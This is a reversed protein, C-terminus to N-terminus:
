RPLVYRSSLNIWQTQEPNIAGWGQSIRYVRVLSGLTLQLVIEPELSTTWPSRRVNLAETIVKHTWTSFKMPQGERVNRQSAKRSLLTPYVFGYNQKDWGGAPDLTFPCVGLVDGQSETCYWEIRNAVDEANESKYENGAYFESVIVDFRRRSAAFLNRYRFTMSGSRPVQPAGPIRGGFGDQISTKSNPPIVGEHIALADGSGEIFEFLGSNTLAVMEDWEPTGANLGLHASHTEFTDHILQGLRVSARGLREYNEPGAPDQENMLLVYEALRLQMASYRSVVQRFWEEAVKNPDDGRELRAGFGFPEDGFIRSVVKTTPSVEHIISALDPRDVTVVVSFPVGAAAADRCLNVATHASLTHIGLNRLM